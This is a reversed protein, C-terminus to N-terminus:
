DEGWYVCSSRLSISLFTNVFLIICYSSTSSLQFYTWSCQVSMTRHHWHIVDTSAPVRDWGSSCLNVEPSKSNQNILLWVCIVSNLNCDKERGGEDKEGQRERERDGGELDGWCCWKRKFREWRGRHGLIHSCVRVGGRLQHHTPWRRNWWISVLCVVQDSPLLLGFVSLKVLVVVAGFTHHM